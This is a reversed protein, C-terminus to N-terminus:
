SRAGAARMADPAATEGTQAGSGLTVRIPERVSGRFNTLRALLSATVEFGRAVLLPGSSLRVDEAVVMGVRLAPIPLERVERRSREAGHLKELAELVRPDYRDVRGRMVDLALAPTHGQMELVDFDVAVRVLEAALALFADRGQAPNPRRPGRYAQLVARVEGLRPINALLQDTIGPLRDVMLQEEDSLEQGYGLKVATDTPLTICAVQSLMAAVEAQWREGLRLKAGLDSVSRRIRTARGFAAPSTLSLVDTLMKISGNLTQELLEREAVILRHQEAAASVASMLRAPPCPKMLFRFIQGENVVDITSQLDAQGTLLLRVADPVIERASRLFAVGDMVPMRMDSVIVATDPYRRLLVLGAAGSTATEVTYRRRLHLTLGELVSPEDDVCLARVRDRGEM